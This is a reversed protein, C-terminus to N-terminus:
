AERGDAIWNITEELSTFQFNSVEMIKKSDYSRTRFASEVTERTLLPKRGSFLYLVHEMRWMFNAILRNAERYPARVGLAQSILEFLAKYSINSGNIVFLESQIDSEALFLMIRSLDRADVFGGSGPSYFTMGNRVREFLQMSSKGWDGRGLIISPNVIVAPLGEEVGRWVEREALHKSLGYSSVGTTNEFIFTEDVSAAFKPVGLAAVSSIHILKKCRNDLAQNVLNATGRCNVDMLAQRDSKRFSVLGACHYIHNIGECAEFIGTPDLIDSEFFTLDKGEIGEKRLGSIIKDEDSKKRVLARVGRGRRQLEMLVHFGALGTAGTVLDM